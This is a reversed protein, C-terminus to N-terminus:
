CVSLITDSIHKKNLVDIIRSWEAAEASLSTVWVKAAAACIMQGKQHGLM